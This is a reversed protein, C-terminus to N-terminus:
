RGGSRPALSREFAELPRPYTKLLGPERMMAEIADADMPVFDSTIEAGTETVIILDELRIYVREEPVTLAPEITFVMGPRLVTGPALTGVDHTAMGVWHGLLSGPASSRARYLTVFQRAAREYEPKSFTTRAFVAQMEVAAEQGIQAPTVGPRIRTLIARYCSLYFTYLERQWPAFRGDVPWMRTVDSMYYGVDPAYDMLVFDGPKMTRAGEHYHPFYANHASAVLSYYADGQAGERFYIFRALADLEAERMGPETSRMAELIALGSLRTAKRILDLERPSKVLRLSDLAPTLDRIEFAPLRERVLRVFRGARSERGDWPDSAADADVRMGLDRSEALGEAPMLPTYLVPVGTRGRAIRTLHEALLDTGYAGDFRLTDRLYGADEASLLPGESRERGENRHPLFVFARRAAGDLVLYAGPVEIGTLYYFENSQRFRTYGRPAPAGQVVAVAGTGLAALVRTRRAAFEEPPFDKSVGARPTTEVQAAAPFAAFVVLLLAALPAPLSSRRMASRPALPSSLIM